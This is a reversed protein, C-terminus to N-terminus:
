RILTVSGSKSYTQGDSSVFQVYYVYAGQPDKKGGHSGNWGENPNITEFVREGWRSYIQFLYSNAEVYISVPKFVNNVGEPMFANPMFVNPRQKACAENSRSMEAFLVPAPPAVVPGVPTGIGEAAEIYYCFNGEGIIIDEINDLYTLQGSSVTELFVFPGNYSRYINYADVGGLWGQYPNWQLSNTRDTNAEAELYITRSINMTDAPLDCEDIGIISYYYSQSSPRAGPDTYEYYNTSADFPIFWITSMANPDTGRQLNFGLFEATNDTYFYEEIGTNGPQVTTRYNYSYEQRKPIDLTLCVENSTSTIRQSADRVARVIYCYDSGAVLNEHVFETITDATSAIRVEPQNDISLYIQYERVGEPWDLYENWTLNARKLCGDAEVELFITQHLSVPSGIIPIACNNVAKVRYSESEQNAISVPNVWDTNTYGVATYIPPWTGLGSDFREVIYQVVNLQTNPLWSIRALGGVVTVSDIPQPDPPLPNELNEVVENSVSICGLNDGLEIRYTILEDACWIVPDSYFLNSTSGVQTWVGAPELRWVEYEANSSSLAPTALANWALDATTTNDTVTLFISAISDIPADLVADNCGSRTRIYYYNPGAISPPATANAGNHVYTGSAIATVTGIEQFPGNPSLGHFIVYEVFSPPVSSDTVPVWTLTIDGNAATSACHPEPSEVVVEGVVTIAVNIINSGSAPCFDDEFKFLFNYTNSLNACADQISVHDCDTQWNFVTSISNTASAPPVVSSLTACPAVCGGIGSVTADFQAGAATFQISQAVAGNFDPDLAELSFNVLDGAAVTVEFGATAAPSAWVPPAVQPINNTEICAIFSVTMERITRSIRQGCRWADVAVTMAYSGQEATSSQYEFQGTVPDLTIQDYAPNVAPGPLPQTASYGPQYTLLTGGTGLGPVFSYSLSDKDPDIANSNYRLEYGSCRLSSPNEAFSPSSDFCPSTNQSNYPYMTVSFRFNDSSSNVINQVDNRCCAEYYFVYGQAPPPGPLDFPDSAFLFQEVSIDEIGDLCSFGCSAPTVDTTSVFNLGLSGLTPCNQVTLQPATITQGPISCDRYATMYMIYKGADPGTTVCEWYLDGSTIHSASAKQSNTCLLIALCFTLKLLIRPLNM